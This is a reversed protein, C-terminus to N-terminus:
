EEDSDKREFSTISMSMNFGPKKDTTNTNVKKYSQVTFVSARSEELQHSFNDESSKLQEKERQTQKSKNQQITRINKTLDNYQYFFIAAVISGVIPALVYIWM